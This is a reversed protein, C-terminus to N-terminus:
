CIQGSLDDKMENDLGGKGETQSMYSLIYYLNEKKEEPTPNIHPLEPQMDLSKLLHCFRVGDRFDGEINDVKKDAFPM